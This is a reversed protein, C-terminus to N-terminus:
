QEAQRGTNAIFGSLYAFHGGNPQNKKQVDIDIRRLTPDSTTQVTVNWTWDIGGMSVDDNSKGTKPWVPALDIETLRNHAVWLALSKERLSGAAGAASGGNVIIAGLAVSVIVLAVLVELLTFGHQRSM